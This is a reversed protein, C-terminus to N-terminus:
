RSASGTTKAGRRKPPVSPAVSKQLAVSGSQESLRQAPLFAAGEKKLFDVFAGVTPTLAKDLRRVAFWRRQVPLGEVALTVLRGSELEAEVTHASIFAIGLGAMVAQKITENSGMEIRLNGTKLPMDGMYIEMSTRTGSGEERMLFVEDALEAKAINRRGALRHEPPAVVVLPHNGFAVADVPMDKPPRGMIAVDIEFDGLLRVIDERNGVSLRVQVGAHSKAFSAILRPSFYKATSVVGVSLRGATIGKLAALREECDALLSWIRGATELVMEGADTPRLGGGTRDFLRCGTEAELQQLQLTVAPPTLNLTKAASVIKGKQGIATLAALQKLTVKRMM